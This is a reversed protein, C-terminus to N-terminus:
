GAIEYVTITSPTIFSTNNWRRGVSINSASSRNRVVLKYTVESTTSPSDLFTNATQHVEHDMYSNGTNGVHQSCSVDTGEGVCIHTSDRKLLLLIDPRTADSGIICAYSVLIKSSTSSPTIAVSVIDQEATSTTTFSNTRIGQKVQLVGGTVNLGLDGATPTSGNALQIQDVKIISSM